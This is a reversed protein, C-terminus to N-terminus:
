EAGASVLPFTSIYHWKTWDPAFDIKMPPKPTMPLVFKYDRHTEDCRFQLVVSQNGVGGLADSELSTRINKMNSEDFTFIVAGTSHYSLVITNNTKFTWDADYAEDVWTGRLASPFDFAFAGAISVVAVAFLALLKKM